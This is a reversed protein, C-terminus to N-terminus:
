REMGVICDEVGDIRENTETQLAELQRLRNDLKLLRGEVRTQITDVLEALEIIHKIESMEPVDEVRRYHRNVSNVFVAM